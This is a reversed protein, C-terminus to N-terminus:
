RARPGAACVLAGPLAIMLSATRWSSTMRSVRASSFRKPPTLAMAPTSKANFRPSSRQRIPGFPAPLLVKKLISVAWILGDFPCTSKSPRSMLRACGCSIERSPM